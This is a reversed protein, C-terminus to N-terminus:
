IIIAYIIMMKYPKLSKHIIRFSCDIDFQTAKEQSLFPIIEKNKYEIKLPFIDIIIYKNYVKISNNLDEMNYTKVDEKVNFKIKRVTEENM